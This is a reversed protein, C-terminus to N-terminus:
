CLGGRHVRLLAELVPVPGATGDELVLISPEPLLLLPGQLEADLVRPKPKSTKTEQQYFDVSLQLRWTFGVSLGMLTAMLIQYAPETGLRHTRCVALLLFWASHSMLPRCTGRPM